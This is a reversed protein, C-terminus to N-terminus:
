RRRINAVVGEPDFFFGGSCFFFTKNRRDRSRRLLGGTAHQANGSRTTTTTTKARKARESADQMLGLEVFKRDHGEVLERGRLEVCLLAGVRALARMRMRLRGGMGGCVRGGSCVLDTEFPGRHHEVQGRRWGCHAHERGALGPVLLDELAEVLKGDLLGKMRMVLLLARRFTGYCM